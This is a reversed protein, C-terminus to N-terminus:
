DKLIRNAVVLLAFAWGGVYRQNLDIDPTRVSNPDFHGMAEARAQQGQKKRHRVAFEHDLRKNNIIIDRAEKGPIIHVRAFDGNQNVVEALKEVKVADGDDTEKLGETALRKISVFAANPQTYVFKM